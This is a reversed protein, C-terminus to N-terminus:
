YGLKFSNLYWNLIQNGYLLAIFAGISLFPGFPITQGFKKKKFAILFLSFIAGISFALFLAVIINPFGLVLGLFLVFKVDGLGMGKGRTIVVLILFFLLAGIGSFINVGLSTWFRILQTNFYESHPSMLYKGFPNQLIEQYFIYSKSATVSILYLLTIITAPFIIKDLILGTKLDVIFVITLISLVFLKFILEFSLLGLQSPSFSTLVFLDPPLSIILILAGFIGLIVETIFDELPIRKKCFRCKGRLLIYSLVPFLDYWKLQKKCSPCYSRGGITEERVLRGAAAQLFSGLSMGIIFGIAATLM